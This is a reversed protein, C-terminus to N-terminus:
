DHNKSGDPNIQKEGLVRGADVDRNEDLLKRVEQLLPLAAVVKDLDINESFFGFLPAIGGVALGHFDRGERTLFVLKSRKDDPNAELRILGRDELVSLTHTMTGKSVQFANAIRLPTRGDGLRVLHNLVGFHSNHLGEPLHKNLLASSLQSIIGIENFFSFVPPLGGGATTTKGNPNEPQDKPTEEM